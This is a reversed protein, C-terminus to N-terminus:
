VEVEILQGAIWDLVGQSTWDGSMAIRFWGKRQHGRMEGLGEVGVLGEKVRWDEEALEGARKVIADEDENRYLDCKRCEACPRGPNIRFHECFHRYGEMDEAAPRARPHRIFSPTGLATRCLYCMSYGCVCTLKNCGSSKVFSLGCRPCTRKIAATRAAEVTTRLSILLPEHCTHPDHWAKQCKLCSARLCAPNRCKFRPSRNRLTLNHLSMRFMHLPEILRLASLVIVVFWLVPLIDVLTLMILLKGVSRTPGVHWIPSHTNNSHHSPDAEAYSCYPCRIIKLQSKLLSDEALRDEFSAWIEVGSKGTVIAHRIVPQSICGTCTDDVLPALCKLAGRDADVSRGWGQGFLAEYITRRICNFCVMHAGTTCSSMNEFTAESCCCECDYLAEVKRAEAENLEEAMKHDREEQHQREMRRAPQLVLGHLEGDLEISGTDLGGDVTRSKALLQTRPADNEKRKRFINLNGITARWTRNSLDNLTPRTRTYSYNNEALVGEITSKSLYRFELSLFQLTAAKYETSRFSSDLPVDDDIDRPPAHWRGKVWQTRNRLLQGLCINLRSDGDFRVLIERLAEFQIDPFLRSLAVLDENLGRREKDAKQASQALVSNSTRSTFPNLRLAEQLASTSSSSPQPAAPRSSPKLLGFPLVM